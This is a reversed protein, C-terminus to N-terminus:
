YVVIAVFIGVAVLIAVVIWVWAHRSTGMTQKIYQSDSVGDPRNDLEQARKRAKEQLEAALSEQFETRNDNQRIFLAMGNTYWEVGVIRDSAM